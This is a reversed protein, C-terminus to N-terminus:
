GNFLDKFDGMIDVYTGDILEIFIYQKKFSFKRMKKVPFSFLYENKNVSRIIMYNENVQINADSSLENETTYDMDNNTIKIFSLKIKKKLVKSAFVNIDVIENINENIEYEEFKPLM